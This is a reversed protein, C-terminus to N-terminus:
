PFIPIIASGQLHFCGDTCGGEMIGQQMRYDIQVGNQNSNHGYMGKQSQGNASSDLFKLTAIIDSSYDQDSHICEYRVYILSDHKVHYFPDAFLGSFICLAFFSLIM